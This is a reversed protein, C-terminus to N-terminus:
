NGSLMALVRGIAWRVADATLIGVVIVLVLRCFGMGAGIRAERGQHLLKLWDWEQIPSDARVPKAETSM